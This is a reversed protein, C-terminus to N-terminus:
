HLYTPLIEQVTHLPKDTFKSLIDQLTLHNAPLQLSVINDSKLQEVQARTVTFLNVPLKELIAGQITGVAFPLSIILRKRNTVELMIQMLQRYTFVQPGGAEIIKGAVLERVTTDNRSILEVLSALDGVYVPQFRSKGGGFVPLFPMIRSLKAFRNFFDDEPGFVLSPRVITAWPDINLVSHEALGKTKYYPIKSGPDAGIASFHVLKAGVNRAVTAVNEAGKVQIREFDQPSGHMLGVMSVVMNADQFAEELTSKSTIDVPVAPLLRHKPVAPDAQMGEWLKWPHRSSLQVKNM